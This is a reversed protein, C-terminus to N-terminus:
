AVAADQNGAQGEVYAHIQENTLPKAYYYGQVTNCGLGVLLRIQHENEAGEVVCEIGLDTCLRALTRVINQSTANTELDNVFSRDIKLKDLPLAHVHSLSSYGAGFDDLAVSFGSKQLIGIHERATDYSHMFATETLEFSIRSPSIESRAVIAILELVTKRSVIDHSSLNLSIKTEVPWDVMAALAKRMMALTVRSILGAQEAVPIFVAPSVPGLVPSNWRALCEFEVAQESSVDIIPQFLAHLEADLNAIRLNQEVLGYEQMRKQHEPSFIVTRLRGTRKAEYLAYDAREFLLDVADAADPYIAVGISCGVSSTVSGVAIPPALAEILGAGLDALQDANGLHPAIFGFEDGGIRFFTLAAGASATLRQAVEALVQDGVKHGHADNVLKFGDLDLIGVAFTEGITCARAHIATLQRFFERRNPLETIMDASALRANEGGLKELTLHSQVLALFDKSYSRMAHVMAASVTVITLAAAGGSVTGQFAYLSAVPLLGLVIMLGAAAGLHMVFFFIAFGEATLQLVIFNRQAEDGYQYLTVDIAVTLMSAAFLLGTASRLRSRAAAQEVPQGNLRVWRIGRVITFLALAAPLAISVLWPATGAFVLAKTGMLVAMAAYMVPMKEAFAAYRATDISVNATRPM